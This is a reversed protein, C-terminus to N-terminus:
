VKNECNICKCEISCIRGTKTCSCRNTGCRTTKCNCSVPGYSKDRGEKEKQARKEMIKKKRTQKYKEGRQYERLYQRRKIIKEEIQKIKDLDTSGLEDAIHSDASPGELMQLSARAVQYNYQNPQPTNKPAFRCILSNFSENSNTSYSHNLKEHEAVTENLISYISSVIHQPLMTGKDCDIDCLLHNGQWHHTLKM